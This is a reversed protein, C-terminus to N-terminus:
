NTDLATLLISNDFVLRGFKLSEVFKKSIIAVRKTRRQSLIFGKLKPVGKDM